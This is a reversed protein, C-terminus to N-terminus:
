VQLAPVRGSSGCRWRVITITSIPDQSSNAQALRFGFAKWNGLIVPMFWQCGARQKRGVGRNKKKNKNKIPHTYDSRPKNYIVRKLKGAGSIGKQDKNLCVSRTGGM